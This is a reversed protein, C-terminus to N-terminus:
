LHNQFYLLFLYKVICGFSYRRFLGEDDEICITHLCFFSDMNDDDDFCEYIDHDGAVDPSAVDITFCEEPEPNFDNVITLTLPTNLTTSGSFLLRLDEFDGTTANLTGFLADHDFLNAALNDGVNATRGMNSALAEFTVNYNIESVVMSRVDVTILFSLALIGDTESVTQRRQAFGIIM